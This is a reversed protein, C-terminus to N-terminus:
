FRIVSSRKHVVIDKNVNKPIMFLECLFYSELCKQYHLVVFKSFHSVPQSTVLLYRRTCYHDLCIATPDSKLSM